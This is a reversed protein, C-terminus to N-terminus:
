LKIIRNIVKGGKDSLKLNQLLNQVLLFAMFMILFGVITRTFIRRATTIQSMNGASTIMLFGAYIFMGTAIFAALAFVLKLGNQALSVLQIFDCETEAGDCKILFNKESTGPISDLNNAQASVFVPVVSFLILTVIIIKKISNM